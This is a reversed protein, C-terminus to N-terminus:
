GLMNPPYPEPALSQGAIGDMITIELRVGPLLHNDAVIPMPGFFLPIACGMKAICDLTMGTCPIDQSDNNQAMTQACDAAMSMTATQPASSTVGRAFAVEQGFIGIIAGLLLLLSYWRKVFV